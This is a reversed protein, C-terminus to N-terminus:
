EIGLLEVEFVLVSNGPIGQTGYEGYGLAPPIYLIWKSGISMMQLAETWGPIVENIGFVAPEGRQVSSDFIKGDLLKGTYHVKVKQGAAPKSGNGTSVVKYQLGSETTVVGEASKNKLLFDIAIQENAKSQKLVQATSFDQLIKTANEKSMILSDGKLANKLSIKFLEYNLDPFGAFKLDSGILVGLAYSLSDNQNNLIPLKDSKKQSFSSLTTLLLCFVITAKKM